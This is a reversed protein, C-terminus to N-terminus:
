HGRDGRAGRAIDLEDNTRLLLRRTFNLRVVLLGALTGGLIAMSLEPFFPRGSEEYVMVALVAGVAVYSLAITWGRLLRVAELRTAKPVTQACAAFVFLCTAVFYGYDTLSGGAYATNAQQWAYVSDSLVYCAMGAALLRLPLHSRRDGGSLLLYVLGVILILDGCPYAVTVLAPLVGTHQLGTVTPGLVFYWLIGAGGLTVIAGDLVLQRRLGRMSATPFCLLGAFFLPYFALYLADTASPFPLARGPFEYCAQLLNGAWYSILAGGILRWSWAIRRSGPRSRSAARVCVVIALTYIPVFSLDSAFAGWRAGGWGYIGRLIYLVLNTTVFAVVAPHLSKSRSM